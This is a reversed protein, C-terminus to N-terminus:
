SYLMDLLVSTLLKMVKRLKQSIVAWFQIFM